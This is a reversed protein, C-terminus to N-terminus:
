ITLMISCSTKNFFKMFFIIDIIKIPSINSPHRKSAVNAIHAYELYSNIFSQTASPCEWDHHKFVHCSTSSKYNNLM